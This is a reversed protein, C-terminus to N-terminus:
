GKCVFNAGEIFIEVLVWLPASLLSLCVWGGSFLTLCLTEILSASASDFEGAFQQRAPCVGDVVIVFKTTVVIQSVIELQSIKVTQEWFDCMKVIKISYLGDCLRVVCSYIEYLCFLIRYGALIYDFFVKRRKEDARKDGVRDLNCSCQWHYIPVCCLHRALDWGGM